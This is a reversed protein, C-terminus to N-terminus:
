KPKNLTSCLETSRYIVNKLREACQNEVFGRHKANPRGRDGQIRSKRGLDGFFRAKQGIGRLGQFGLRRFLGEAVNRFSRKISNEMISFAVGSIVNIVNRTIHYRGKTLNTRSVLASTAASR